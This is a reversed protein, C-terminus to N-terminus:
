HLSSSYYTCSFVSLLTIIRYSYVQKGSLAGGHRRWGRGRGHGCGRVVGVGVGSEGVRVGVGSEGVRVGVRVRGCACMRVRTWVRVRVCACVRAHACVGVGAAASMKWMSSPVANFGAACWVINQISNCRDTILFRAEIVSPWIIQQHRTSASSACLM